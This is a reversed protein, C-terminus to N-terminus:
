SGAGFNQYTRLGMVPTGNDLRGLTRYGPKRVIRGRFQMLNTLEEFSDEPTAWPKQDKRLADKAPGILFTSTTM